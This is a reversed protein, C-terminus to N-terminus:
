ATLLERRARGFRLVTPQLNSDQEPCGEPGAPVEGSRLWAYPVGTRLAWLRLTQAGPTIRGNIWTGVTGRAVGLYDAMEQVGVGSLRLAKRMRDAVDPELDRASFGSEPQISM